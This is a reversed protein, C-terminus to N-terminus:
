RRAPINNYDKTDQLQCKRADRKWSRDSIGYEDALAKIRSKVTIPCTSNVTNYTIEMGLLRHPQIIPETIHAQQRFPVTFHANILEEATGTGVFDHVYAYIIITETNSVTKTYICDSLALRQHGMSTM